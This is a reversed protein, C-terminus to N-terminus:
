RRGRAEVGQAGLDAGDLTATGHGRGPRRQREPEPRHIRPEGPAPQQGSQVLRRRRAERGAVIGGGGQKEGRKGGTERARRSGPLHEPRHRAPIQERRAQGLRPQGRVPQEAGLAAVIDLREGHQLLAHAM